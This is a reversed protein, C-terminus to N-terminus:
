CSSYGNGAADTRGADPVRKKDSTNSCVILNLFIYFYM